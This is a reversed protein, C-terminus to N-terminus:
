KKVKLYQEDITPRLIVVESGNSYYEHGSEGSYKIDPSYLERICSYLM